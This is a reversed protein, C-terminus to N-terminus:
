SKMHVKDVCVLVADEEAVEVIVDLIVEETDDVWDVVAEVVAVVVAVEVTVLVKVEVTVVTGVFEVSSHKELSPANNMEARRSHSLCTNTNLVIREVQLPPEMCGCFGESISWHRDSPIFWGITSCWGTAVHLLTVSLIDDMISAKLSCRLAYVPGSAAQLM